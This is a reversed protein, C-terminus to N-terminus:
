FQTEIIDIIRHDDDTILPNTWKDFLTCPHSVGLRVVDGVHLSDFGEAAELFAHQDNVSTVTWGQHSVVLPLDIDFPVDRRGVNLFARGPEPVSLVVAHVHAAAQPTHAGAFGEFWSEPMRLWPNARALLGHDHIIYAGARVVPLVSVEVVSSSTKVNGIRLPGPLEACVVDLYASGGASVIVSNDDGLDVVGQEILAAATSRLSVVFDSVAQLEEPSHGGAVSGEYGSVGRVTLGADYAARAVSVAEDLSRVGTRGGSVGVEVVVVLHQRVRDLRERITPDTVDLGSAGAVSREFEAFGARVKAVSAVSDVCVVISLQDACRQADWVKSALFAIESAVVVENAHFVNTLGDVGWSLVTSIHGVTATTVGWSGAAIQRELLQPSMSTKIHPAHVVGTVDAVHAMVAINHSIASDSLELVPFRTWQSDVDPQETSMLARAESLRVPHAFALGKTAPGVFSWARAEHGLSGVHHSM